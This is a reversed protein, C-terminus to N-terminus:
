GGDLKQVILPFLPLSQNGDDLLKESQARLFDLIQFVRDNSTFIFMRDTGQLDLKMM